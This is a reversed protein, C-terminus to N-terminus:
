CRPETALWEEFPQWNDDGWTALWQRVLAHPFVRGAAADARARAIIAAEEAPDRQEFLGAEHEM